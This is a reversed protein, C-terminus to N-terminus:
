VSKAAPQFVLRFTAGPPGSREVKASIQEAFLEVLRMGLCRRSATASVSNSIGPGDDAVLIEISGDPRETIVLQISGRGDRLAYKLANSVLEQVIMGCATATDTAVRVEAGPFKTRLQDSNVGYSSFLSIAVTRLYERLDITSLDKAHHLQEHLHAMTQVRDGCEQLVQLTTEDQLTRAQLRLLSCIVQLNNKVRHHVERLLVEKELLSCRIREETQRRETIDRFYVSLGGASPYAHVEFWGSFLTSFADFHVPTDTQVAHKFMRRFVDEPFDRWFSRGIVDQRTRRLLREAQANLYTIRSDADLTFFGDTISELVSLLRANSQRLAEEGRRERAVSEKEMERLDQRARAARVEREVAAALRDLHTKSLYDHAGAEMMRVGLDDGIAGSVLVFPLDIGTERLIRMAAPADFHPLHYGAIVVDWVQTTLALRMREADQVRFAQVTHGAKKLHRVILSADSENDEVQLVRLLKSM